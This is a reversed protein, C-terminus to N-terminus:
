INYIPETKDLVEKLEKAANYYRINDIDEPDEEFYEKQKEYYNDMYKQYHSDNCLRLITAKKMPAFQGLIDWLEEETKDKIYEYLVNINEWKKFFPLINKLYQEKFIDFVNDDIISCYLNTQKEVFFSGWRNDKDEYSPLLKNNVLVKDLINDLSNYNIQYQIPCFIYDKKDEKLLLTITYDIQSTFSIFNIIYYNNEKKIFYKVDLNNLILKEIGKAIELLRKM